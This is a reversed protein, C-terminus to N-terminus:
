GSQEATVLVELIEAMHKEGLSFHGESSFYRAESTPVATALYKTMSPPVNTDMEGQWVHFSIQIDHLSFGWPRSYLVAEAVVGRAGQRFAECFSAILLERVRPESLVDRDPKPLAMDEFTVELDTSTATVPKLVGGTFKYEFGCIHYVDYDIEM